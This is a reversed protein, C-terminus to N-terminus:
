QLEFIRTHSQHAVKALVLLDNRGFAQTTKWQQGDKYLHSFTGTCRIRGEADNSWIAAKVSGIRIESVPESNAM